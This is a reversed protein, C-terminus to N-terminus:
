LRSVELKKKHRKNWNNRVSESPWGCSSPNGHPICFDPLKGPRQRSAIMLVEGINPLKPFDAECILQLLLPTTRKWRPGKLRLCTVCRIELYQKSLHEEDPEGVIKFSIM